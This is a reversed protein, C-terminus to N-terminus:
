FPIDSDPVAPASTAAPKPASGNKPAGPATPAPAQKSASALLQGLMRQKFQAKRADNMKAEPSVGRTLSNVWAVKAVTKKQGDKEYEEIEVEISVENADIGTLDTPDNNPFTCGCYRLSEFTRRTTNETFYGDWTLEQGKHDGETIAFAVRVFDTGKNPSTGFEESGKRARARYFGAPVM